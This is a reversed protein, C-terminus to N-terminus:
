TLFCLFTCLITPVYSVSVFSLTFAEGGALIIIQAQFLIWHCVIVWQIFSVVIWVSPFLAPSSLQTLFLINM